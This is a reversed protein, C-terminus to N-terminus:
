SGDGKGQKTKTLIKKNKASTTVPPCHLDSNALAFLHEFLKKEPASARDIQQPTITTQLIQTMASFASVCENHGVKVIATLQANRDAKRSNTEIRGEVITFGVAITFVIIWVTIMRWRKRDRDLLREFREEITLEPDDKSFM